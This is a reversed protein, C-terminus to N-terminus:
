RIDYHVTGNPFIWLVFNPSTVDFTKASNANAFYLDPLWIKNLLEKDKVLVRDQSDHKLRLDDWQQELYIDM